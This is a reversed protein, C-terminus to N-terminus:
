GACLHRGASRVAAAFTHQVWEYLSEILRCVFPESAWSEVGRKGFECLGQVRLLVAADTADRAYLSKSQRCASPDSAYPAQESALGECGWLTKPTVRLGQAGASEAPPELPPEAAASAVPAQKRAVPVSRPPESRLGAPHHTM